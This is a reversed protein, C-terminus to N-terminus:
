QYKDSKCNVFWNIGFQDTFMAFYDGWHAVALPILVNGKESLGYFLHEAEQKSEAEIYISFNNGFVTKAAMEGIVDAGMLIVNQGVLLSINEIKSRVEDSVPVENGDKLVFDYRILALFEGGFVSRYFTFAEECNGDFLLYFHAAAM